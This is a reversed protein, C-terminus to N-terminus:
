FPRSYLEAGDHVRITGCDEDDGYIDVFVVDGDFDVIVGYEVGEGLVHGVVEFGPEVDILIFDANFYCRRAVDIRGPHAMLFETNLAM